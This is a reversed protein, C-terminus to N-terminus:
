STLDLSERKAEIHESLIRALERRFSLQGRAIADNVSDDHAREIMRLERLLREYTKQHM